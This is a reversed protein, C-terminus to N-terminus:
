PSIRRYKDDLQRAPIGAAHARLRLATDGTILTVDHGGFERLEHCEDLVERDADDPRARRADDVPVEITTDPGVAGGDRLIVAELWPLVERARQALVDSRGYKKADLEEVVRLPVVLRVSLCKLMETWRVNDPRQYHLLTNTDLVTPKEGQARQVRAELDIALEDLATVQFDREAYLPGWLRQPNPGIEQILFHRRTLLMTVTGPDRTLSGLQQEMSEVWARYANFAVAADHHAIERGRRAGDRLVTLAHDPNVGYKLRLRLM